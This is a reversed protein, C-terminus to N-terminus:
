LISKGQFVGFWSRHWFDHVMLVIKKKSVARLNELGLLMGTGFTLPAGGSYSSRPTNSLLLHQIYHRSHLLPFPLLLLRSTPQRLCFVRSAPLYLQAENFFSSRNIFVKSIIEQGGRVKNSTMSRDEFMGWEPSEVFGRNSSSLRLLNPLPIAQRTHPCYIFHTSINNRVISLVSLWLRFCLRM